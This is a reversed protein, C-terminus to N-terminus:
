ILKLYTISFRAGVLEMGSEGVVMWERGSGGVRMWEWGTGGM